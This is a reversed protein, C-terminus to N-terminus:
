PSRVGEGGIRWKLTPKLIPNLIPNQTPNQTLNQTLNQTRKWAPNRGAAGLDISEKATAQRPAADV